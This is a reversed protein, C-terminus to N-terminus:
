DHWADICMWCHCGLGGVTKRGLRRKAIFVVFINCCGSVFFSWTLNIFGFFFYGAKLM